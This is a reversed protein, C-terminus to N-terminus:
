EKERNEYVVDIMGNYNQTRILKLTLEADHSGFLRIGSGLITPIISIHYRDIMKEQMLQLVISAGGCIWIDKGKQEKLRQVLSSPPENVFKINDTSAQQKHTIVYSTFDKYVWEMPSLVTVVQHYTTWGMIVTDIGKVFESYTEENEVKNSQGHLWDVNGNIDAIYGDLSMAIFLVVKRM